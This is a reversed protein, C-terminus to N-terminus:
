EEFNVQQLAFEYEAEETPKPKFWKMHAGRQQIVGTLYVYVNPKLLAAFRQYTEGFASFQYSGTYDEITYRGFPFGKATTLEEASTVIGGFRFVKNEHQTIWESPSLRKTTSEDEADEASTEIM